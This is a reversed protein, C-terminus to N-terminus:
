KIREKSTSTRREQEDVQSSFRNRVYPTPHYNPRASLQREEDIRTVERWANQPHIINLYSTM